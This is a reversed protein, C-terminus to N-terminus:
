PSMHPQQAWHFPARMKRQIEFGKQAYDEYLAELAKLYLNIL